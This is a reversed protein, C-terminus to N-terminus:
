LVRYCGTLEITREAISVLSRGSFSFCISTCIMSGPECLSVGVNSSGRAMNSLKLADSFFARGLINSSYTDRGLRARQLALQNNLNMELRAKRLVILWPSSESDPREKVGPGATALKCVGQREYRKGRNSNGASSRIM